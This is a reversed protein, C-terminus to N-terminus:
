DESDLERRLEDLSQLATLAREKAVQGLTLVIANAILMPVSLTLFTADEGRPAALLLGPPDALRHGVMDAVLITQAGVTDAHQMLVPLARPLRRFAFALVVDGKGLTLLREALDRGQASINRADLGASALRSTTMEALIRANGQAWVFVRRASALKKAAADIQRQNLHEAVGHLAALEKALLGGLVDGDNAEALSRAMRRASGAPSQALNHQQLARRLAPYGDFGLKRALRVASSEHAGAKAALQRVSMFMADAPSTLLVDVLKREVETLDARSPELLRAVPNATM